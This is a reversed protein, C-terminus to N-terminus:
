KEVQWLWDVVKQKYAPVKEWSGMGHGAGEVSYLECSDGTQLMRECMKVSQQYDVVQDDTGHILLYPPMGPRVHNIPAADELRKFAEADFTTIHLFAELASPEAKQKQRMEYEGMLNHPGYFSVV